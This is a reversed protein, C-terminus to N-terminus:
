KVIVHSWFPQDWPLQAASGTWGQPRSCAAPGRVRWGHHHLQDSSLCFGTSGLCLTAVEDGLSLSLELSGTSTAPCSMLPHNSGSLEPEPLLLSCASGGLSMETRKTWMYVGRAMGVLIPVQCPWCAVSIRLGSCGSLCGGLSSGKM